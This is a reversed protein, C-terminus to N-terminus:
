TIPDGSASPQVSYRRKGALENFLDLQEPSLLKSLATRKESRMQLNKAPMGTQLLDIMSQAQGLDFISGKRFPVVPYQSQASDKNLPEKLQLPRKKQEQSLDSREPM